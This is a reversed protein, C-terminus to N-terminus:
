STSLCEQLFLTRPCIIHWFTEFVDPKDVLREQEQILHEHTDYIPIKDIAVKIEKYLESSDKM